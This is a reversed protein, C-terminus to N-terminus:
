FLQRKKKEITNIIAFIRDMKLAGTTPPEMSKVREM